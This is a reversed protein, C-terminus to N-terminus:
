ITVLKKIIFIDLLGTIEFIEMVSSTVNIFILEGKKQHIIKQISVFVRLGASSVYELVKMDIEIKIIDKENLKHFTSELQPATMTDLRGIIKINIECERQSYQIELM